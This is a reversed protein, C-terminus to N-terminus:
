KFDVISKFKLSILATSHSSAEQGLRPHSTGTCVNSFLGAQTCQPLLPWRAARELKGASYVRGVKTKEGERRGYRGGRGGGQQRGEVGGERRRGREKM